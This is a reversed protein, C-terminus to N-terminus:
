HRKATSKGPTPRPFHTNISVLQSFLTWSKMKKKKKCLIKNPQPCTKQPKTRLVCVSTSFNPSPTSCAYGDAYYKFAGNWWAFPFITADTWRGNYYLTSSKLYFMLQETWSRLWVIASGFAGTGKEPVIAIEVSPKSQRGYSYSYGDSYLERECSCGSLAARSYVQM